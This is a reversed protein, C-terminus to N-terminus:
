VPFATLDDLDLVIMQLDPYVSLKTKLLDDADDMAKQWSEYLAPIPNGTPSMEEVIKPQGPIDEIIVIRAM